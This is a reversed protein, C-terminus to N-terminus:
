ARLDVVSRGQAKGALIDTLVGDLEDLTVDHGIADLHSPRLDGGLRAWVERRREMPLMVSDIGLLNVGRLIFPFVTTNLHHGGANGCAAACGHRGLTSLVAALTEGGVTDVAGAWRASDLPRAPGQGLEDRAIIRAAGLDRLYGYADESGSSAVLADLALDERRLFDKIRAGSIGVENAPDTCFDAVYEGVIMGAVVTEAVSNGGLRNFGHLDWCAAEGCAFLGRLTPSQGQRDTRVGGMSYHQAPRVPILERAPDIGLFYQCIEKVERLNKNIHAEGLLTIDLWVHDGYRSKAGHGQAIDRAIALGLGSNVEDQNRGDDLRFFPRFVDDRHEVPIGPGDDDVEVGYAFLDFYFCGTLDSRPRVALSKVFM